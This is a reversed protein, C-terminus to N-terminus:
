DSDNEGEGNGLNVGDSNMLEEVEAKLQEKAENGLTERARKDDLSRRVTAAVRGVVLTGVVGVGAGIGLLKPSAKTVAAEGIKKILNDVGGARNAATM